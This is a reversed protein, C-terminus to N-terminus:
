NDSLFNLKIGRSLIGPSANGLVLRLIADQFSELGRIPLYEHDLTVDMAIASRIAEVVPFNCLSGDSNRYGDATLDIIPPSKNGIPKLLQNEISEFHTHM